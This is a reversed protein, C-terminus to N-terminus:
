HVQLFGQSILVQRLGAPDNHNVIIIHNTQNKPLNGFGSFNGAEVATAIEDAVRGSGKVIITPWGRQASMQIEERTIEGGNWAIVGLHTFGAHDRLQGMMNFYDALDGNWDLNGDAGKQVLLIGSMTPNPATGYSDLVLRSDGQLSLLDTRPATGLAICGPNNAAIVGPVDTVMPDLNGDKDTQRTAGSFALGRFGAFAKSFYDLMATKDATTMGKCGGTIRIAVKHDARTAMLAFAAPIGEKADKILLTVKGGPATIHHPGQNLQNQNM